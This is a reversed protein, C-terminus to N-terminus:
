MRKTKENRHGCVYHQIFLNISSINYVFILFHCLTKLYLLNKNPFKSLHCLNRHNKHSM